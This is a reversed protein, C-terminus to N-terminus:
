LSCTSWGCKPCTECRGTKELLGYCMPCEYQSDIMTDTRELEEFFDLFLERQVREQRKTGPNDPM